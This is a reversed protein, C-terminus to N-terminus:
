VPDTSVVWDSSADTGSMRTYFYRDEDTDGTSLVQFVLNGGRYYMRVNTALLSPNSTSPIDSSANLGIFTEGGASGQGHLAVEGGITYKSGQSNIHLDAQGRNAMAPDELLSLWMSGAGILKASLIMSAGPDMADLEFVGDTGGSFCYIEAYTTDNIDRWILNQNDVLFVIGTDMLRVAGGAFVGVGDSSRVGFQLTDADVGVINYNAGGYVLPPFGIRVGSFGEGPQFANGSRFEGAKILGLSSSLESLGQVIVVQSPTVMLSDRLGGILAEIDSMKRFIDPITATM